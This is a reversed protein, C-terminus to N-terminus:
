PARRGKLTFGLYRIQPIIHLALDLRIFSLVSQSDFLASICQSAGPKRGPYNVRLIRDVTNVKPLRRGVQAMVKFVDGVIGLSVDQDVM